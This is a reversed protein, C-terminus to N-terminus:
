QYPRKGRFGRGETDRLISGLLVYALGLPAVPAVGLAGAETDARGGLRAVLEQVGEDPDLGTALGVAGAVGAGGAVVVV